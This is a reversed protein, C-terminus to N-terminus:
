AALPRAHERGTPESRSTSPTKSAARSPTSRRRTDRIADLAGDEGWGALYPISEGSVDLGLAGLVCYTVCDVLVECRERGLEAYGLGHATRSRM